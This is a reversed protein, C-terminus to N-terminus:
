RLGRGALSAPAWDRDPRVPVMRIYGGEGPWFSISYASSPFHYQNWFMANPAPMDYSPAQYNYDAKFMQGSADYTEQASACWSDEDVYLVRKPYIHRKGPRLTGEVVWM